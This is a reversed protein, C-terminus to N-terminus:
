VRKMEEMKSLKIYEKIKENVDHEVNLWHLLDKASQVVLKRDGEHRKAQKQIMQQNQIAESKQKKLKILEETIKLINM